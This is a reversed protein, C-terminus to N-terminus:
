IFLLLHLENRCRKSEYLLDVFEWDIKLNYFIRNCSFIARHGKGLKHVTERAIDYGCGYYPALMIKYIL